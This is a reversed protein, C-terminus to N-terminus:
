CSVCDWQDVSWILLEAVLHTASEAVDALTPSPSPKGRDKAEIIIFPYGGELYSLPGVRGM